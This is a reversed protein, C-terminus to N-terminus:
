MHMCGHVCICAYLVYMFTCICVCLHMCVYVHMCCMCLHASACVCLHMCVDCLVLENRNLAEYVSTLVNVLSYDILSQFVFGAREMTSSLSPLDNATM